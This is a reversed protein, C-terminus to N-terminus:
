SDKANVGRTGPRDRMRILRAPVGGVIAYSPVDQTVVAGAGVIAGRGITVGDMVTVNAGLWVDDEIVIDGKSTLAQERMPVNPDSFGHQYPMLACRMGIMCNAGIWISSVFANLNCGAQIHTDAGIQVCGKGAGLEIISWRYVHVGRGLRVAGTAGKHAYITVYDDVFCGSGLELGPCRIQAEPSVYPRGGLHRLLKRRDKYPGVALGALRTFMPSLASLRLMARVWTRFAVDRLTKTVPQRLTFPSSKDSRHLSVM